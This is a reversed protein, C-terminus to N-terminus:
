LNNTLSHGLVSLWKMKRSGDTREGHLIADPLVVRFGKEALLYAFHLNHEKASTFGHIFFILPLMKEEHGAKVVHLLPVGKVIEKHIQIM